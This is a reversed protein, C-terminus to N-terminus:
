ATQKTTRYGRNVFYVGTLAAGLAFGTVWTLKENLLFFGLLLAIFPNIYAYISALGVPLKELAYLFCSYSLLSGFITLYLLAYISEASVAKLEGYNDFILSMAVLGIGGGTLQYAANTMAPATSARQKIYVSGGAWSLAALFAVIVGALYDPRAIDMINDRFMLAIGVCGLFLGTLVFRNPPRRDAGSVYNIAVIYVPMISTILAALGSPIYRESWGIVGNGLSLMLFGAFMQELAQKGPLSAQKRALRLIGFIALGATLQRISSFLMPPFTEVGIRLAFYTTGWVVCVVALALYAKTLNHEM